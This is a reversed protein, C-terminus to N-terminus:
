LDKLIKMTEVWACFLYIFETKWHQISRIEAGKMDVEDPFRGTVNVPKRYKKRHGEEIASFARLKGEL